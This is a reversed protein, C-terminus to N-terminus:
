HKNAAAANLREFVDKLLNVMGDDGITIGNDEMFKAIGGPGNVEDSADLADLGLTRPTIGLEAWRAMNEQTKSGDFAAGEHDKDMSHGSEFPLSATCASSASSNGRPRRSDKACEVPAM